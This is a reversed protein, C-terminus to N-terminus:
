SAILFRLLFDAAKTIGIRPTILVRSDPIKEGQHIRIPGKTFDVGYHSLEIGLGRTLRGPGTFDGAARILVCGPTGEPEVVVNLMKHIGYNLYVYAHGPPGFIVETRKTRGAFSHAAPDDQPLYAETERIQAAQDGLVLWMGLLERAVTATDRSFFNRDLITGFENRSKVPRDM